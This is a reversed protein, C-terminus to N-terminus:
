SETAVQEVRHQEAHADESAQPALLQIALGDTDHDCRRMVRLGHARKRERDYPRELLM